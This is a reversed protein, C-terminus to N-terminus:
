TTSTEKAEVVERDKYYGCKPCIRHPLRPEGCHSCFGWGPISLKDHHARRSDRKAKSTRQKPVAM